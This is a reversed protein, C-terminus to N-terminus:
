SRTTLPATGFNVGFRRCWITVARYKALDVGAPLDYNQDGINGKLGAVRVFGSNTVTANDKADAAAVLLVQVDPGNSTHFGTLRLVRRGDALEHITATGATEHSGSHFKGSALERPAATNAAPYENTTAAATSSAMPTETAASMSSTETAAAAAPLKEDVVQNVFLREPRFAYWGTGLAALAVIAIIMKNMTVERHHTATTV